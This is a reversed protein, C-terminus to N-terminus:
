LHKLGFSKALATELIVEIRIIKKHNMMLIELLASAREKDSTLADFEKKVKTELEKESMEEKREFM